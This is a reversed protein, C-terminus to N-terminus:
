LGFAEELERFHGFQSRIVKEAALTFAEAAKPTSAEFLTGQVQEETAMCSFIVQLNRVNYGESKGGQRFANLKIVLSHNPQINHEGSLWILWTAVDTLSWDQEFKPRTLKKAM